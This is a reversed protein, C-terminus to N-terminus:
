KGKRWLLEGQGKKKNEILAGQKWRFNSIPGKHQAVSFMAEKERGGGENNKLNQQKISKHAGGEEDQEEGLRTRFLGFNGM